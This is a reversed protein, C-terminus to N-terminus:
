SPLRGGAKALVEPTDLDHGVGPGAAVEIVETTHATILDRAGKDGEIAVLAPFFRRPWLVPNGRRGDHVPAVIARRGSGEFAALIGDITASDVFPMDGLLILAGDIETGLTAIGAKLSTSLGSAYDPNDVNAVDLGALAARIAEPRHGTVVVVPRLAHSALAAETVRRILSVGAIEALLKNPGGM